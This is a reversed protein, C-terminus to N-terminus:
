GRSQGVPSAARDYSMHRQTKARMTAREPSTPIPLSYIFFHRSLLQLIFCGLIQWDEKPLKECIPAM